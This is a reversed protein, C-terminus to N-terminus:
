NCQPPIVSTNIKVPAVIAAPAIIEAMYPLFNDAYSDSVSILATNHCHFFLRLWLVAAKKIHRHKGAGHVNHATYNLCSRPASLAHKGKISSKNEQCTNPMDPM